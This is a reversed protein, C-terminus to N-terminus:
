MVDPELELWLTIATSERNMFAIVNGVIAEVVKRTLLSWWVESSGPQPTTEMGAKSKAKTQLQVDSCRNDSSSSVTFNNWSVQLKISYESRRATRWLAAAYHVCLPINLQQLKIFSRRERRRILLNSIQSKWKQWFFSMNRPTISKGTLQKKTHRIHRPHM